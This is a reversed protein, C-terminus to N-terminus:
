KVRIIFAPALIWESRCKPCRSPAKPTKRASFEFQCKGCVAPRVLLVKGRRKLSKRIHEIDEYVISRSRIDLEQCLEEATLPVETEELIRAIEERRTPM